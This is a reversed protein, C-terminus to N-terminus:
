GHHYPTGRIITDARYIQEAVILCALWSPFTGPGLGVKRNAGELLEDPTGYAGGVWVLLNRSGGDALDELSRAWERSPMAKAREDLVWVVDGSGPKTFSKPNRKIVELKARLKGGRVRQILEETVQRDGGFPFRAPTRLTIDLM